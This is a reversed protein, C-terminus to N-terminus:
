RGIVNRNGKDINDREPSLRRWEVEHFDLNAEARRCGQQELEEGGYARCLQRYV